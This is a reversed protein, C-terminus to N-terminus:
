EAARSEESPAPEKAPQAEPAAPPAHGGHGGFVRDVLWVPARMMRGVFAVARSHSLDDFWSYVVPTAILTLLLALTQGGLIVSGIARNTGSGAGSSAVLPIMGAVFAVTTMLIPRLRDRNGVMIADARSLGKRRLERTHDVQLISNKKVVGFLVLIGLASFINLSQGLVLLSLLAFPVTLPLSLLITVPHIWSEFQAALVLYMFVFSLFIAFLFSQGARALERSRGTLQARYGPQPEQADFAQQFATIVDAESFGPAVNCYVTVQRQRALHQISAPGEGPTISAVDSLRVSGGRSTPVTVLAIRAPDMRAEAEARVRVDYTEGGESYTGVEVGGVVLRLATAIDTISVGLDAARARDIHVEYAPRGTVLSVDADVVGPIDRVADLVGQSYTALHELDPGRLVYQIAASDAGGGGFANVPSVITRLHEAEYRPLVEDRVTGILQVQSAARETPPVLTVFISAQNPGRGSADGPPSGVTVLTHAAGPLARVDRAIREAIIQTQALSTGETARMSIEFRSEDDVPLFNKPVARGIPVISALTVVMAIASLWRHRMVFALLWLYSREVYRYLGRRAEAHLHDGPVVRTGRMWERLEEREERRPGPAPDPLEEVHVDGAKAELEARRRTETDDADRYPGDEREKSPKVSGKLWRSSLMPTLTFSVVLSVMIAFSMTFGFSAMFRGMIGAMFAVPLFVAVLSLTTALVALGIERTALVAARRPSEGKEEVWRVINELVVIADDIVIGVALTLALLTMSNLTLGMWRLLTFTSIISTPIALAAIVTSRGNWLFFLVVLAAFLGGVVLHEEVAHVSNRIFESEDRVIEIRYAPPLERRIEAVRERLMDVVAVTNTGSQKRIQVLVVSQGDLTGASSPEETGDIVDAVDAIRITRGDRTALPLAGFTAPDTVRGLVRLQLTRAGEQVDGGPLEVNETALARQVDRATLGYSTLRAPDIRVEIEREEGGIVTVGSVGDLSEILRRVRTDAFSTVERRSRDSLVAITMVPAAGPDVREVRPQDIGDPLSSVVRNVRDRVEQAAVDIDKELVFRAVVVSLGEYSNSRLEDIGSVTNIVEELPESVEREVQEPSAGPLVTTVVVIPVDINPFRDVGLGGMSSIGVVVLGLILVWTFVPRRVCIEALWQM